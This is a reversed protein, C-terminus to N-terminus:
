QHDRGTYLCDCDVAWKLATVEELTGLQLCMEKLKAQYDIEDSELGIMESCTEIDRMLQARVQALTRDDTLKTVITEM